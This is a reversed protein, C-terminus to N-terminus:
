MIRFNIGGTFTVMRHCHKHAEFSTHQLSFYCIKIQTVFFLSFLQTLFWTKDDNTAESKKELRNQSWHIKILLLYKFVPRQTSSHKLNQIVFIVLICKVDAFHSFKVSCFNIIRIWYDGFNESFKCCEM